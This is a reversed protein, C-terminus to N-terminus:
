REERNAGCIVPFGRLPRRLLPRREKSVKKPSAFFTLPQRAAGPLGPKIPSLFSDALALVYFSLFSRFSMLCLLGSM